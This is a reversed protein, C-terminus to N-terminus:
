HGVTFESSWHITIVHGGVISIFRIAETGVTVCFVKLSFQVLDSASDNGIATRYVLFGQKFM